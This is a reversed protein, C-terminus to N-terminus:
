LDTIPKGSLEEYTELVQDCGFQVTMTLYDHMAQELGEAEDDLQVKERCTDDLAELANCVEIAGFGDRYRKEALDRCYATFLGKEGTRVANLLHRLVVTFRWELIERPVSQYHPFREPGESGILHGDVFESRIEDHHKELLRHIRLNKRLHVEKMAARNRRHWEVPETKLNEIMFPVRRPLLLRARPEWQLLRHSHSADVALDRDIYSVMWPREFPRNGLMRGLLDRGWVGIRALLPPM